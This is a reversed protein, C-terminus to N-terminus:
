GGKNETTHRTERPRAEYKSGEMPVPVVVERQKPPLIKAVLDEVDTDSLDFYGKIFAGLKIKVAERTLLELATFPYQDVDSITNQIVSRAQTVGGDLGLLLPTIENLIFDSVLEINVKVPDGVQDKYTETKTVIEANFPEEPLSQIGTNNKNAEAFDNPLVFFPPASFLDDESEVEPKKEHTTPVAYALQGIRNLIANRADQQQSTAGILPNERKEKPSIPSGVPSVVVGQKSSKLITKRQRAKLMNLTSSKM